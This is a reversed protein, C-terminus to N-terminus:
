ERGRNHHPASATAILLTYEGSLSGDSRKVTYKQIEDVCKELIEKSHPAHSLDLFPNVAEMAETQM